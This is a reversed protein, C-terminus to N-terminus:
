DSRELICSLIDAAGENHAGGVIYDAQALLSQPGDEMAVGIGAYALMEVDAFSDGVALIHGREWGYEQALWHLATGKGAQESVFQIDSSGAIKGPHAFYKIHELRDLKARAPTLERNPVGRWEISTPTGLSALDLIKNVTPHTLDIDRWASDYSEWHFTKFPITKMADIVKPLAHNAIPTLRLIRDSNHETVVAGLSTLTPATFLAELGLAKYASFRRGTAVGIPLGRKTAQVLLSRTRAGLHGKHLLTGDLDLYVVRIGAVLNPLTM